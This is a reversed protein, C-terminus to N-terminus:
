PFFGVTFYHEWRIISMSHKFFVVLNDKFSCLIDHPEKPFCVNDEFSSLIDRPKKHFFQNWLCQFLSSYSASVSAVDVHVVAVLNLLVFVILWVKAAYRTVNHDGSFAVFVAVKRSPVITALSQYGPISGDQSVFPFESVFEHLYTLTKQSATM